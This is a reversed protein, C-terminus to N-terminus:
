NELEGILQNINAPNFYHYPSQSSLKYNNSMRQFQVLIALYHYADNEDEFSSIIDTIYGDYKSYFFNVMQNCDKNIQSSINSNNKVIKRIYIDFLECADEYNNFQPYVVIIQLIYVICSNFYSQHKNYSQLM